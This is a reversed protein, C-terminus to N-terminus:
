PYILRVEAAHAFLEAANAPSRFTGSGRGDTSVVEARDAFALGWAIVRGETLEWETEDRDLECLAFLQPACHIEDRVLAYEEPEPTWIGADTAAM